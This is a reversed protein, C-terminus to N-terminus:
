AACQSQPLWEDNGCVRPTDGACDRAGAQCTASCAGDSCLPTPATCLELERWRGGECVRPANPLVCDRTQPACEWSESGSTGGGDDPHLRALSEFDLCGALCVLIPLLSCGARHPRLDPFALM